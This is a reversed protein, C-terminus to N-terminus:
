VIYPYKWIGPNLYLFYRSILFLDFWESIYFDTTPSSSEKGAVSEKYM